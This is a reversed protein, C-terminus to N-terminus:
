TFGKEVVEKKYIRFNVLVLSKKPFGRFGSQSRRSDGKSQREGFSGGFFNSFVDGMDFGFSNGGSNGGFSFSYSKSGGSQGCTTQWNDYSFSFGNQGGSGGGSRFFTHVGRNGSSRSNFGPSGKADRFMDYNKKKVEDSLIEY